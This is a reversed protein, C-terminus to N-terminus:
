CKLSIERSKRCFTFWFYIVLLSSNVVSWFITSWSTSASTAWTLFEAVSARRHSFLHPPRPPAAPSIWDFQFTVQLLITLHLLSSRLSPQFAPTCFAQHISRQSKKKKRQRSLSLVNNMNISYILYSDYLVTFSILKDQLWHIVFQLLM